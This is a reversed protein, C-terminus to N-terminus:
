SRGVLARLLRNWADAHAAVLAIQPDLEADIARRAATIETPTLPRRVCTDFIGVAGSARDEREEFRRPDHPRDCVGVSALADHARRRLAVLQARAHPAFTAPDLYRELARTLAAAPDAALAPDPPLSVSRDSVDISPSWSLTARRVGESERARLEITFTRTVLDLDLHTTLAGDSLRASILRDGRLLLFDSTAGHDPSSCTAADSAWCAGAPADHRTWGRAEAAAVAPGMTPAQAAAISASWAALIVLWASESRAAEDIKPPARTYASRGTGPSRCVRAIRARTARPRAALM